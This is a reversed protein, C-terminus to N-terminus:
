LSMSMQLRPTLPFVVVGSSVAAFVDTDGSLTYTLVSANRVVFTYNLRMSITLCSVVTAVPM